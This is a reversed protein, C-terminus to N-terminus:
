YETGCKLCNKNHVSLTTGCNQCTWRGIESVLYKETGSISITKLNQILSIRYRTQYRKDIQKLRACPFKACEYCFKSDTKALLECNRINCRICYGMITGDASMCGNCKNKDRLHARCTGCNIGCPALQSRSFQVTSNM